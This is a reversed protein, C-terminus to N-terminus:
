RGEEGEKEIERKREKKRDRKEKEGQKGREMEREKKEDREERRRGIEGGGLYKQQEIFDFIKLQKIIYLPM